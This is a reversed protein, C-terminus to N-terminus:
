AFKPPSTETADACIVSPIKFAPFVTVIGEYLFSEIKM